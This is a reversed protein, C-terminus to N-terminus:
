LGVGPKSTAALRSVIVEKVREPSSTGIKIYAPADPKHHVIQVSDSLVGLWKGIEVREIEDYRLVISKWSYRIVIFEDYISLRVFPGRYRVWGIRGGSTQTHLPTKNKEIDLRRGGGVVLLLLTSVVLIIFFIPISFIFIEVM